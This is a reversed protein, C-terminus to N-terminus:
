LSSAKEKTCHPFQYCLSSSLSSGSVDEVVELLLHAVRENNRIETRVVVAGCLNFMTPARQPM